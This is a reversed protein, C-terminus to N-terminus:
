VFFLIKLFGKGKAKVAITLGPVLSISSMTWTLPLGVALSRTFPHNYHIEIRFNIIIMLIQVIKVCYRLRAVLVRLGEVFM